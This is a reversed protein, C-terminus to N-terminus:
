HTPARTPASYPADASGAGAPQNSGLVDGTLIRTESGFRRYQGFAVDNLFTKASGQLNARSFMGKQQATHALLISVSKAPCTYSKGGIEVPGYEILMAAKSVLEGPQMEAEMTIRLITGTAPDFAIEGHYSARESFVQLNPTGDSNFGNAVCCFQVEYHSKENPVAYHFVAETGGPGSEWHGWTIKGQIADAVSRSLIPGFEGSTVLGSIQPGHKQAKVAKADVVEQRDRYTVEVSSKAVVHLPLYILTMLGTAEKVDEQPRDEFGTTSRTAILNPLQRATTNVYNVILAMMKRLAAPDPPPTAAVEADPPNLFASRDALAMLAEQAKSGPLDAELHQLKATNLREILEMNMLQEAVDADPKGHSATVAQELQDVTVKVLPVANESVAPPTFGALFMLLVWERMGVSEESPRGMRDTANCQLRGAYASVGLLVVIAIAFLRM